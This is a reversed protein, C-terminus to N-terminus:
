KRRRKIEERRWLLIPRTVFKRMSLIRFKLLTFRDEEEEKDKDKDEEREQRRMRQREARLWHSGDRRWM